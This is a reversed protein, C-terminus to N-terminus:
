GDVFRRRRCRQGRRSVLCLCLSSSIRGDPQTSSCCRKKTHGETHAYCSVYLTTATPQLTYINAAPLTLATSRSTYCKKKRTCPLFFTMMRSFFGRREDGGVLRGVDYMCRRSLFNGEELIRTRWFKRPVSVFTVVRFVSNGSDHMVSCFVIRRAERGSWVPPLPLGGCSQIQHSLSIAV